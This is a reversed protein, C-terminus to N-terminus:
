LYSQQRRKVGVLLSYFLLLLHYTTPPCTPLPVRRPDSCVWDLGIWDLLCRWFMGRGGGCRQWSQWRQDVGEGM